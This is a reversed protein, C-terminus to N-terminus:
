VLRSVSFTRTTRRWLISESCYICKHPCGRGVELIAISRPLGCADRYESFPASFRYDPLPLEDLNSILDRSKNRIIENGKRYSVGAIGEEDKGSGYAMVLEKFTIEGEGRVICDVFPYRELTIKDAFSANHGGVVIKTSPSKAKVKKSIQIVAPYTTCQASFGVLDPAHELIMEACDDYIGKGTQLSKKRIALVFDILVTQHSHNKLVTCLNILGSPPLNYMPELFFPPFVLVIKM